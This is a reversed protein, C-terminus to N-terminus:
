HVHGTREICKLYQPIPMMPHVVAGPVAHRIADAACISTLGIAFAPIFHFEVKAKAQEQIRRCMDLFPANIKMSAGIVAVRVTDDHKAQLPFPEPWESPPRYPIAEKPVVILREVFCKPDGLYDSEVVVYDITPAHTTAPHGSGAVQIPALRLNACYVTQPFMGLSPYYILQPKYFAAAQQVKQTSELTPVGLSLPVFEDFMGRTAEDTCELMGVGILKYREEAGDHETLAYPIDLPNVFGNWSL